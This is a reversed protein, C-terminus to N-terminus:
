IPVPELRYFNLVPEVKIKEKGRMYSFSTKISVMQMHLEVKAAGTAAKKKAPRAGDKPKAGGDKDLEEKGLPVTWAPVFSDSTVAKSAECYFQQGWVLCLPLASTTPTMTVRGCYNLVLNCDSLSTIYPRGSPEIMVKELGCDIKYGSAELTGTGDDQM